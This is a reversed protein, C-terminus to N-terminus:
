GREYPISTRSSFNRRTSWCFSMVRLFEHVVVQRLDSLVIWMDVEEDVFAVIRSYFRLEEALEIPAAIAGQKRVVSGGLLNQCKNLAETLRVIAVEPMPFATHM